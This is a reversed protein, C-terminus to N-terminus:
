DVTLNEDPVLIKLISNAETPTVGTFTWGMDGIWNSDCQGDKIRFDYDDYGRVQLTNATISWHVDSVTLNTDRNIFKGNEAFILKTNAGGNASLKYGILNQVYQTINLDSCDWGNGDYGDGSAVFNNGDMLGYQSKTKVKYVDRDIDGVLVGAIKTVKIASIFIEKGANIQTKSDRTETFNDIYISGDTKFTGQLTGSYETGDEEIGNSTGDVSGNALTGSLTGTINFSSSLHKDTDWSFDIFKGTLTDGTKSFASYGMYASDLDDSNNYDAGDSSGASYEMSLSQGIFEFYQQATMSKAESISDGAEAISKTPDLKFSKTSDNNYKSTLATMLTDVSTADSSLTNLTTTDGSKAKTTIYNAIAVASNIASDIDKQNTMDESKIAKKTFEVSEKLTASANKIATKDSGTGIVELFTNIAVSAQIKNVNSDVVLGAMPDKNLDAATLTIGATTLLDLVATTDGDFKELLTTMPSVIGTGSINATLSGDFPVGNHIGKSKMAVKAGDPLAPSFTCAGYKSTPTSIQEGSDFLNNNNKDWYMVADQIYPDVITLDTKLTPTPPTTINTNASSNDSSGCGVLMASALASITISKVLKKIKM